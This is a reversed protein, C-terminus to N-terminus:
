QHDYKIHSERFWALYQTAIGKMNGIIWSKLHTISGNVTQIHFIDDLVRNKGNVLRKHDGSKRAAIKM